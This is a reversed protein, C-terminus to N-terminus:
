VFGKSQVSNGLITDNGAFSSNTVLSCCYEFVKWKESSDNQGNVGLSRYLKYGVYSMLAEIFLEPIPLDDEKDTVLDAIASYVVVLSHDPAPVEQLNEIEVGSGKEAGKVITHTISEVYDFKRKLLFSNNSMLKYDYNESDSTRQPILSKGTSDIIDLINIVDSHRLTYIHTYMSTQITEVKTALRFRKSLEIIGLNMFSILRDDTFANSSLNSLEGDRVFSLFQSVKM